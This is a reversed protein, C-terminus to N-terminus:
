SIYIMILNDEQFHHLKSNCKAKSAWLAILTGWAIHSKPFEINTEYKREPKWPQRFLASTHEPEQPM